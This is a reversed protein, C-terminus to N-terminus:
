QPSERAIFLKIFRTKRLTAPSIFRLRKKQILNPTNSTNCINMAAKKQRTSSAPKANIKRFGRNQLTRETQDLSMRLMVGAIDFVSANSRGKTEEGRAKQVMKELDSSEEDDTTDDSSLLSLPNTTTLKEVWTGELPSNGQQQADEKLTETLSKTTDFADEETDADTVGPIYISGKATKDSEPDRPTNSDKTSVAAESISGTEPALPTQTELPLPVIDPLDDFSFDDSVEFSDPDESAYAPLRFCLVAALIFVSFLFRLM